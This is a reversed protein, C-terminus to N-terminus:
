LIHAQSCTGGGDGKDYRYSVFSTATMQSHLWRWPPAPSDQPFEPLFGLISAMKAAMLSCGCRVPLGSPVLAIFIYSVPGLLQLLSKLWGLGKCRGMSLHQMEQSIQNETVLLLKKNRGKGKTAFVGVYGRQGKTEEAHNEWSLKLHQRRPKLGWTAGFLVLSGVKLNYM